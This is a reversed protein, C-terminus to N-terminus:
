AVAETNLGLKAARKQLAKDFTLFPEGDAQALHLADAFDMGSRHHIAAARVADAQSFVIRGSADMWEVFDAFQAPSFKYVSRLVWEIELIVTPFVRWPRAALSDVAAQHETANDGTALRVLVNTDVAVTKM